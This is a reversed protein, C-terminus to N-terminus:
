LKMSKGTPQENWVLWYYGVVDLLAIFKQLDLPKVVYSNVENEYAHALDSEAASTTMVVVPIQSLGPEAKIIKLVELGDVKPLRLDLM